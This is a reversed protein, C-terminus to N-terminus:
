PPHLPISASSIPGSYAWGTNGQMFSSRRSRRRTASRPFGSTIIVGFKVGKRTCGKVADLVLKAPISICAVDVEDPIDELTRYVPIGQISGGRPNVPFINGRYGGSLINRVISYGVKSKDQSAGIVAISRPEFLARIDQQM